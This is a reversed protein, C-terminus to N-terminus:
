KIFKTLIKNYFFRSDECKDLNNDGVWVGWQETDNPYNGHMGLTKSKIGFGFYHPEFFYKNRLVYIIDGFNNNTLGYNKRTKSNIVIGEERSLLYKEINNKLEIENVWVRLTTSDIFYKYGNNTQKGFIDELVLRVKQPNNSMGHDSFMLLDCKNKKLYIDIIAFLKKIATKYETSTVGKYHGLHDIHNFALLTNKKLDNKKLFDFANEDIKLTWESFNNTLSDLKTKSSLPYVGNSKYLKAMGLPINANNFGLRSQIRRFIYTIWNVHSLYFNFKSKDNYAYDTFFGAEDPNLGRLLLNHQNSSFGYGPKLPSIKLNWKSTYEKFLDKHEYPLADIFIILKKM